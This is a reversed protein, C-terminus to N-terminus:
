FEALHHCGFERVILHAIRHPLGAAVVQFVRLQSRYRLGVWVGGLNGSINRPTWWRIPIRLPLSKMESVGFCRMRMNKGAKRDPWRNKCRGEVLFCNGLLLVMDRICLTRM